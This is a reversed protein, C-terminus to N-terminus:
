SLFIFISKLGIALIMTWDLEKLNRIKEAKMALKGVKM